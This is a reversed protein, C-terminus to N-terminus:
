HSRISALNFITILSLHVSSDGAFERKLRVGVRRVLKASLRM